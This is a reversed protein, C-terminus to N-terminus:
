SKTGTHAELYAIMKSIAEKSIVHEIRCADGEAITEDVELIEVFFRTLLKHRCYIESAKKRGNETLKVRRSRDMVVYEMEKLISIARSVSPKSFGLEGAIDVSRVAGDREELRLITELYDEGSEYLAM